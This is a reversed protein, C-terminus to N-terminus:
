RPQRVTKIQFTLPISIKSDIPQGNLLAPKWPPMHEILRVAEKDFPSGLSNIVKLEKPQGHSDIIFSVTIVGQTSDKIAEQPYKLERNLYEYLLPFGDIPEAALYASATSDPSTKARATATRPEIKRAPVNTEEKRSEKAEVNNSISATDKSSEAPTGAPGAEVPSKKSGTPRLQLYGTLGILVIGALYLGTRLRHARKKKNLITAQALTLVREFNMSNRIEEETMDPKDTM